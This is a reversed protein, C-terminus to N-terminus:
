EDVLPLFCTGARPFPNDFTLLDMRSQIDVNCMEDIQLLFFFVWLM